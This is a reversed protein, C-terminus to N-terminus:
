LSELYQLLLTVSGDTLGADKIVFIEKVSIQSAAAGSPSTGGVTLRYIGNYISGPNGEEATSDSGIWMKSSAGNVYVCIAKFAGITAVNDNGFGTTGFYVETNPTSVRQWWLAEPFTMLRTNAVWGDQRILAFLHFPQSITTGFTGTDLWDNTGDFTIIGDAVSPQMTASTQGLDHGGGVFTGHDAWASVKGGAETIDTNFKYWLSVTFDDPALALTSCNMAGNTTVPMGASYNQVTGAQEGYVMGNDDIPIGGVYRDVGATQMYVLGDFTCRIGGIFVDTAAGASGLVIQLNGSSDIAFGGSYVSGAAASSAPTTKIQQNAEDLPWLPM